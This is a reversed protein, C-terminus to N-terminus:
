GPLWDPQMSASVSDSEQARVLVWDSAQERALVSGPVSELESALEVAREPGAVLSPRHGPEAASRSASKRHTRCCPLPLLVPSMDFSGRCLLATASRFSRGTKSRRCSDTRPHM